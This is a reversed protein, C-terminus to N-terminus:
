GSVDDHRRACCVAHVDEGDLAHDCCFEALIQNRQIDSFPRLQRFLQLFLCNRIHHNTQLHRGFVYLLCDITAFTTCAVHRFSTPTDMGRLDLVDGRSSAAVPIGCYDPGM